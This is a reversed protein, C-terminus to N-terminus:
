AVGEMENGKHSPVAVWLSDSVKINDIILFPIVFDTINGISINIIVTARWHKNYNIISTSSLIKLAHDYQRKKKKM